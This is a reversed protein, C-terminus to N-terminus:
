FYQNSHQLIGLKLVCKHLSPYIILLISGLTNSTSTKDVKTHLFAFVLGTSNSNLFITGFNSSDLVDIQIEM